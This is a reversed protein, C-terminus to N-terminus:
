NNPKRHPRKCSPCMGGSKLHNHPGRRHHPHTNRGHHQYPNRGHHRNHQSQPRNYHGQQRGPQERPKRQPVKCCETRCKCGRHPPEPKRIPKRPPAALLSAPALLGSGLALLVNRRNMKNEKMVYKVSVNATAFVILMQVHVNARVSPVYQPLM